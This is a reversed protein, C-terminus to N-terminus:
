ARLPSFYVNVKAYLLFKFSSFCDFIKSNYHLIVQNQNGTNDTETSTHENPAEQNALYLNLSSILKEEEPCDLLHHIRHQITDMTFPNSCQIDHSSVEGDTIDDNYGHSGFDVNTKNDHHRHTLSSYLENWVKFCMVHYNPMIVQMIPM